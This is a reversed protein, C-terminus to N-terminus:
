SPRPPSHPHTAKQWADKIATTWLLPDSNEVTVVVERSSASPSPSAFENSTSILGGMELAQKELNWRLGTTTASRCKGAMPLLGCIPGEIEVDPRIV